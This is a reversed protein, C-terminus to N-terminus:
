SLRISNLKEQVLQPRLAGKIVIEGNMVLAPIYNIDFPVLRKTFYIYGRRYIESSLKGIFQIGQYEYQNDEM